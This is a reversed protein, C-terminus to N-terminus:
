LAGDQEIKRFAAKVLWRALADRALTMIADTQRYEGLLESLFGTVFTEDFHTEAFQWIYEDTADADVMAYVM